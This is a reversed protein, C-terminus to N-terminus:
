SLALSRLERFKDQSRVGLVGGSGVVWGAKDLNPIKM